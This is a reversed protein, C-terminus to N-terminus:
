GQQIGLIGPNPEQVLDGQFIQILGIFKGNGQDLTDIGNYYLSIQQLFILDLCSLFM